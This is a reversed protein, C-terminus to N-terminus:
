LQNIFLGVDFRLLKVSDESERRRSFYLQGTLYCQDFSGLGKRQKLSSSAPPSRDREVGLPTMESNKGALGDMGLGATTFM